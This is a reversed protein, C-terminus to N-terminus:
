VDLLTVDDWLALTEDVNEQQAGVVDHLDGSRETTDVDISQNIPFKVPILVPDRTSSVTLRNSMPKTSLLVINDQIDLSKSEKAIIHM